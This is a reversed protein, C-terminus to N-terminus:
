VCVCVGFVVVVVCWCVFHCAASRAFGRLCSGGWASAVLCCALRGRWRLDLGAQAPVTARALDAAVLLGRLQEDLSGNWRENALDGLVELRVEAELVGGDKSQLLGSLGAPLRRLSM